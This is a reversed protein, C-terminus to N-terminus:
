WNKSNVEGTTTDIVWIINPNHFYRFQYRGIARSSNAHYVIAASMILSSILLCVGVFKSDQM